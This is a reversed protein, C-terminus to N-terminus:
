SIFDNESIIYRENKIFKLETSLYESVINNYECDKRGIIMNLQDRM